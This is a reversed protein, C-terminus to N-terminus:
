TMVSYRLTQSVESKASYSEEKRILTVTIESRFVTKDEIMVISLLCSKM